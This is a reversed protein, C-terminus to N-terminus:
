FLLLNELSKQQVLTKGPTYAPNVLAVPLGAGAAGFMAIPFEPINPSVLAIVEGKKFGMRILASGFRRVAQSM